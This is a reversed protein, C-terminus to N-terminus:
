LVSAQGRPSRPLARLGHSAWTEARQLVQSLRVVLGAKGGVPDPRSLVEMGAPALPHWASM